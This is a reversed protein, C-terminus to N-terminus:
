TRRATAGLLVGALVLLLGALRALTLPEGLLVAFLVASAPAFATFLAAQTGTTRATGAFWLLFGLVTPVVAYYAVAGLAAASASLATWDREILVAPVLSLLLGLGTMVTSQVLPPLPVSLRKNLLIFLAECAVAGLILLNGAVAQASVEGTGGGVTIVIAGATAVAAAAWDRRGQRERLLIAAFLTTMAPLTGLVVGADAVSTLGTGAILLVTYGVSGAGAQVALLVADRRGLRPWRVRAARMLLVFLPFAIAFRLATATFPPLGAGALRSAVVTSGVGVMALTLCLYGLSRQNM